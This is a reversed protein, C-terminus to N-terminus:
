WCIVDMVQSPTAPCAGGSIGGWNVNLLCPRVTYPASCNCTTADVSISPSAGCLADVYWTHGNCALASVAGGSQLANCLQTALAPDNCTVGTADNSGRLTIARYNGTLTGRFTNFADCSAQDSAVATTFYNSYAKPLPANCSTCGSGGDCQEIESINFPAGSVNGDDVPSAYGMCYPFTTADVATVTQDAGGSLAVTMRVHGTYYLLTPDKVSFINGSPRLARLVSPDTITLTRETSNCTCSDMVMGHIPVGNLFAPLEPLTGCSLAVYRLTISTVTAGDVTGNGCYRECNTGRYGAMCNCTYSNVGDVCTGGNQCPNGACDNVNTQCNQGTFGAPCNCTYGGGSNACTGGNQCPNSDCENIDTECNTGSYGTSTCDCLYGNVQDRCNGGNQCPSPDCEDINTTCNDGSWGADCTCSIGGSVEVCDGNVCPDPDCDEPAIECTDGSYGPQCTCSYDNLGDACTGGNQCPNPDCDDTNTQCRSGEWGTDCDCNYSSGDVECSGHVCPNPSCPDGTSGATGGAGAGTDGAQGGTAGAEGGEGGAGGIISGASGGTSRGSTGGNGGKGGKGGAGGSAGGTGGTTDPTDTFTYDGKDAVTCAWALGLGLALSALRAPRLLLPTM